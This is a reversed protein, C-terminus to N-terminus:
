APLALEHRLEGRGGLDAVVVLDHRDRRLGPLADLMSRSMTM